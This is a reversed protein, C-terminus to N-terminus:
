RNEMCFTGLPTQIVKVDVGLRPEARRLERERERARFVAGVQPARRGGLTRVEEFVLRQHTQLPVGERLIQLLRM